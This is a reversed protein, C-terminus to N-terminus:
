PAVVSVESTIYIATGFRSPALAFYYRQGSKLSQVTYSFDNSVVGQANVANLAGYIYWGPKPGYVISWGDSDSFFRKWYLTVAGSGPGAKAWLVNRGVPGKTGVVTVASAPAVASVEGDWGASNNGVRIGEVAFYYRTNANLNGVTFTSIYGIYPAAFPYNNSSTGYHISFNEGDLFFRQWELTVQNAGPGPYARLANRGVPGSTTAALASTPLVFLFLASALSLVVKRVLSM